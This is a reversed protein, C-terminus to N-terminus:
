WTARIEGKGLEMRGHEYVPAIPVPMWTTFVSARGFAIDIEPPLFESFINFSVTSNYSLEFVKAPPNQHYPLAFQGFFRNFSNMPDSIPKTLVIYTISTVHCLM